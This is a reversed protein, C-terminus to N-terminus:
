HYFSNLFGDGAIIISLPGFKVRGWSLLRPSRALLNIDVQRASRPLYNITVLRLFQRRGCCGMRRWFAGAAFGAATIKRQCGMFFRAWAAQGALLSACLRAM